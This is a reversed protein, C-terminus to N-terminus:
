CGRADFETCLKESMLSSKPLKNRNWDTIHTELCFDRRLKLTEISRKHSGLGQRPRSKIAETEGQDQIKQRAEVRPLRAKIGPMLAKFNHQSLM